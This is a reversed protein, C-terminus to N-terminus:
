PVGLALCADDYLSFSDAGAKGRHSKKAYTRDLSFDGSYARWRFDCQSM